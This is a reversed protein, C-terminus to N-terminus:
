PAAAATQRPPQEVGAAHLARSDSAASVAAYYAAQRRGAGTAGASPAVPATAVQAEAAQRLMTLARSRLAGADEVSVGLEAAVDALQREQFFLATVVTRLQEPLTAVADAVHTCRAQASHQAASDYGAPAIDAEVGGGLVIRTEHDVVAQDVEGTLRSVTASPKAAATSPSRLEDLVARRIHTRATPVFDGGRGNGRAAAAQTLGHIGAAILRDRSIAPPIRAALETVIHSVLPLHDAVLSGDAATGSAPSSM